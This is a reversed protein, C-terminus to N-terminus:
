FILEQMHEDGRIELARPNYYQQVSTEIIEKDHIELYIMDLLLM